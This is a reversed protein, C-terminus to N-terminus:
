EGENKTYRFEYYVLFEYNTRYMSQLESSNKYHKHVLRSDIYDTAVSVDRIYSIYNFAYILDYVSYGISHLIRSDYHVNKLDIVINIGIM